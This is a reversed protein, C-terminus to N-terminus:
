KAKIKLKKRWWILFAPAVLAVVVTGYFGFAWAEGYWPTEEVVISQQEQEIPGGIM